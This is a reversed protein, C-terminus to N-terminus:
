QIIEEAMDITMKKIDTFDASMIIKTNEDISSLANIWEQSVTLKAAEMGGQIQTSAAIKKIGDATAEAVAVIERAQGEAENIMREKEGESINVAEEYAARSLNIVTEMEGVSRAIEARKEREAKMQNEMADMISDSVRINQIEYRTVKVGWPDSAEDVAKVVQANIQERAEFTDDLDLQGVVSRMTTQALLITAYRYDRIGYSAKIPDFVQLYLIGDIRVQVNDKTFCDQAPVDIAQEKLNQKYKVRDLFPFLIHFGADLTTHYKGLREVILAVKHPVIRISRFLAVIFVIAIIAAIVIPIIFNLM